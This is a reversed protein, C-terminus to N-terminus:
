DSRTQKNPNPTTRATTELHEHLIRRVEEIALPHHHVVMHSAEVVLESAVQDLHASAFPVVGDGREALLGLKARLPDLPRRHTELGIISHFEVESPRPRQALVQLVPSTPSLADVSTPVEGPGSRWVQPNARIAEQITARMAAPLEVLRAGLRGIWSPSISSGRHPTGMFVVRKVEPQRRFFFIRGLEDRTTPTLQLRGFPEDSVTAWFDNGSDQTLTKAVLGGMSHGVVVMNDLAADRHQPDLEFRLKTLEERLNAAAVLFPNGTPYLYFWFQYKERLIPDARLDNFLPAWTMPSSLLGHVMLVPIKGPQYPEFFYIGERHKVKEARLFGLYGVSEFDARALFYALPTTLDTELPIPWGNVEVTQIALPNFLELRGARQFDLDVLNGDFRFFATAPFTVEQPYFAYWLGPLNKRVGVLPVGLGFGRHHNELGRVEFDSSLLLGGFEDPRWPFGHHTVSLTYCNGDESPLRLENRPDLQGCHQASKICKALGINYLDCALRLRPDFFNMPLDHRQSALPFRQAPGAPPSAAAFCHDPEHMQDFIYHYAYGASLYFYRTAATTNQAKEANVGLEYSMEALAFLTDPQGTPGVIDQLRDFAQIPDIRYVRELDFRRLTQRTRPSLGEDGAFSFRWADAVRALAGKRVSIAACGAAGLVALALVAAVLVWRGLHSPFRKM